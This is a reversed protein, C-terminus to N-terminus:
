RIHVPFAGLFCVSIYMLYMPQASCSVEALPEEEAEDWMAEFKTDEKQASDQKRTEETEMDSIDSEDDEHSEMAQDGYREADKESQADKKLTSKRLEIRLEKIQKLLKEKEEEHQAEADLMKSLMQNHVTQVSDRRLKDSQENKLKERQLEKQVLNFEDTKKELQDRVFLYLYLTCPDLSSLPFSLWYVSLFCYPLASSMSMLVHFIIPLSGFKIKM